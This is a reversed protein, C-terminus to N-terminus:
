EGECTTSPKMHAGCEACYPHNSYPTNGDSVYFAGCVSCEQAKLYKGNAYYPPENIWEGHRVLQVDAPATLRITECVGLIGQQREGIQCKAMLALNELLSNKEIYEKTMDNKM